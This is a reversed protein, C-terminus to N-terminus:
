YYFSLLQPHKTTTSCDPTLHKSRPCVQVSFVQTRQWEWFFFEIYVQLTSSHLAPLLNLFCWMHWFSQIYHIIASEEDTCLYRSCWSKMMESTEHSDQTQIKLQLNQHFEVDRVHPWNIAEASSLYTRYLNCSTLM